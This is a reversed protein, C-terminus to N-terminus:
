HVIRSWYGQMSVILIYLRQTPVGTHKHCVRCRGDAETEIEHELAATEDSKAQGAQQKCHLRKPEDVVELMVNSDVSVIIRCALKAAGHVAHTRGQGASSAADGGYREGAAQGPAFVDRAPIGVRNLGSLL